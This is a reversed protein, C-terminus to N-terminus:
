LASITDIMGAPIEGESEFKGYAPRIKESWPGLPVRIISVGHEDIVKQEYTLQMDRGFATFWEGADYAAEEIIAIQAPTLRALTKRSILPIYAQFYEKTITIYKAVETQKMNYHAEVRATICDVTRTALATYTEAWPIIQIGAGLTEWSLVPIRSQFMRLKLGQLDAPTFVPKNCLLTRDLQFDWTIRDVFFKADLKEELSGIMSQRFEDTALFAKMHDRDRFLYPLGFVAFRKDWSSYWELLEVMIDQSGATLNEFQADISGLQSAPFVKIEIEGGSREAVLDAFKQVGLGLPSQPQNIHGAKLTIKAAAPAAGLAAVVLAMATNVIIRKYM